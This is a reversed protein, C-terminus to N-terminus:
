EKKQVANLMGPLAGEQPAGKIFGAAQGVARNAPISEMLIEEKWARFSNLVWTKDVGLHINFSFKVGRKSAETMEAAALELLNQVGSVLEYDSVWEEAPPPAPTPEPPGFEFQPSYRPVIRDSM